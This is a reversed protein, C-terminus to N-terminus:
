HAAPLMDQYIKSVIKWSSGYRYLSIYDVYTRSEGEFYNIRAVAVDGTIDIFEVEM